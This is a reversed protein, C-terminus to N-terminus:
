TWHPNLKNRKNVCLHSWLFNTVLPIIAPGVYKVDRGNEM